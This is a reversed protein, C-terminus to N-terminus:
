LTHAYTHTHAHAHKTPSHTCTHINRPVGKLIAFCSACVRHKAEFTRRAWFQKSFFRVCFITFFCMYETDSYMDVVSFSSVRDVRAQMVGTDSCCCSPTLARTCGAVYRHLLLFVYMISSQRYWIDVSYFTFTLSQSNRADYMLALVILSMFARNEGAARRGTLIVWRDGARKPPSLLFDENTPTGYRNTSDRHSGRWGLSGM